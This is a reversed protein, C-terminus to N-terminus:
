GGARRLSVVQWSFFLVAIMGLTEGKLGAIKGGRFVGHDSAFAGIQFFAWSKLFKM